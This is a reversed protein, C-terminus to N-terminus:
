AAPRIYFLKKIIPPSHGVGSGETGRARGAKRVLEIRRGSRFRLFPATAFPLNHKGICSFERVGEPTRGSRPLPRM